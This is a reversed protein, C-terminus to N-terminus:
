LCCSTCFMKCNVGSRFCKTMREICFCVLFIHIFGIKWSKFGAYFFRIYFCHHSSVVTCVSFRATCTFFQHVCEEHLSSTQLDNHTLSSPLGHNGHVGYPLWFRHLIKLVPMLYLSHSLNHSYKDTNLLLMLYFVSWLLFLLSAAIRRKVVLNRSPINSSVSNSLIGYVATSDLSCRSSELFAASSLM